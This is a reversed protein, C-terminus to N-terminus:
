GAGASLINVAGLASLEVVPDVVLIDMINCYLRYPPGSRSASPSAASRRSPHRGPAPWKWTPPQPRLLRYGRGGWPGIPRYSLFVKKSTLYNLLFCFQLYFELNFIQPNTWILYKDQRGQPGQKLYVKQGVEPDSNKKNKFHKNQQSVLCITHDKGWHLCPRRLCSRINYITFFPRLWSGTVKGNNHSVKNRNRFFFTTSFKRMKQLNSFM